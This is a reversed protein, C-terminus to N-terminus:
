GRYKVAFERAEQHLYKRYKSEQIPWIFWSLDLKQFLILNQGTYTNRYYSHESKSLSMKKGVTYIKPQEIQKVLHYTTINLQLTYYADSVHECLKERLEAFPITACTVVFKGAYKGKKRFVKKFCEARKQKPLVALYGFKSPHKEAYRILTMPEQNLANMKAYHLYLRAMREQPTPQRAYNRIVSILEDPLAYFMKDFTRTM